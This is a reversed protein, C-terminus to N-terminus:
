VAAHRYGNLILCMNTHVKKKCHSIIDGEVINVHGGSDGQLTHMILIRFLLPTICYIYKCICSALFYLHCTQSRCFKKGGALGRITIFDTLGCSYHAKSTDLMISARLGVSTLINAMIVVHYLMTSNLVSCV